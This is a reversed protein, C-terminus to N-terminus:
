ALERRLDAVLAPFDLTVDFLADDLFKPLRESM